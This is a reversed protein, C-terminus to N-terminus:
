HGMQWTDFAAREEEAAPKREFPIVAGYALLTNHPCVEMRELDRHFLHKWFSKPGCSTGQDNRGIYIVQPAMTVLASFGQQETNVPWKTFVVDPLLGRELAYAFFDKYSGRYDLYNQGPIAEPAIGQMEKDVSYVFKAGLDLLLRVECNKKRRGVGGTGLAWVVKNRVRVEIAVRMIETIDGYM